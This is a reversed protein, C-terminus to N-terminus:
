RVESLLARLDARLPVFRLLRRGRPSLRALSYALKKRTHEEGYYRLFGCSNISFFSLADADNLTTREPDGDPREHTAVLAAARELVNAEVADALIRRVREAGGRAHVDKFAQYDKAHQEVRVDAESDLREVDHFLAAIQLAKSAQPDLRLVWRWVDLAHDFDARVLPKHLDHLSRHRRLVEDLAKNRHPLFRQLHVLAERATRVLSRGEGLVALTFPGEESLRIAGQGFEFLDSDSWAAADVVLTRERARPLRVGVDLEPHVRGIAAAIRSSVMSRPDLLAREIIM